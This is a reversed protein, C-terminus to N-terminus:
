ISVLFTSVKLHDIITIKLKVQTQFRFDELKYTELISQNSFFSLNNTFFVNKYISSVLQNTPRSSHDKQDM